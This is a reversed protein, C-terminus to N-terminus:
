FKYQAYSALNKRDVIMLKDNHLIRIRCSKDGSQMAIRAKVWVKEVQDEYYCLDNFRFDFRRKRRNAFLRAPRISDYDLQAYRHVYPLIYRVKGDEEQVGSLVVNGDKTQIDFVQGPEWDSERERKKGKGGGGEERPGWCFVCPVNQDTAEAFKVGARGRVTKSRKVGPCLTGGKHKTRIGTSSSLIIYDYVPVGERSTPARPHQPSDEEVENDEVENEEVDDEEMSEPEPAQRALALTPQAEYRSLDVPAYEEEKGWTSRLVGRMEDLQMAFSSAPMVVTILTWLGRPSFHTVHGPIVYGAKRAITPLYEIFEVCRHKKGSTTGNSLVDFRHKTNFTVAFVSCKDHPFCKNLFLHNLAAMDPERCVDCTDYWVLNLEARGGFHLLFESADVTLAYAKQIDKYAEHLDRGRYNPSLICSGPFKPYFQKCFRGDTSDLFMVTLQSTDYGAFCKAALSIITDRVHQKDAAESGSEEYARDNRPDGLLPKATPDYREILRHLLM